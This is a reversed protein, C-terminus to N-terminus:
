TSKHPDEIQYLGVGLRVTDERRKGNQQCERATLWNDVRELFAQGEQELLEAFDAGASRPMQDNVASREFRKNAKGTRTLNHVYTTAVDAIVTGWLRILEEDMTHPIYSRQLAQLRGDARVRVAGATVLEKLLTSPRVDAGGSREILATFTRGAGSMRLLAPRGDKDRFEPDLHWASLVLSAKTVYGAPPQPSSSLIQRQKRVDRRVLGTLIATRSVNTPRGRKGFSESAVEVYTTKALESFERWTIGCSLLVHVLPKLWQHTARLVQERSALREASPAARRSTTIPAQGAISAEHMRPM